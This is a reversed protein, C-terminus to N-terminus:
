GTTRLGAAIANLSLLLSPLAAREADADGAKRAARWDRLVDIQFGHLARLGADRLVLTKFMRPRRSEMPGGFLAEIMAATRTYEDRVLRLFRDRVAADEVLSAYDAVLDLSASAVATEVNKLVYGLFPHRATAQALRAFAAPDSTQIGELATGLGYWGPLYHRSQNWSFVWPIARLDALSRKGTRRVPRSGIHAQELADIPTAEDFYTMFGETDIFARYTAHSRAALDELLPTLAEDTSPRPAAHKITTAAVGALLLELNYTATILNAYKQAITEGQETVRFDGTVTGHPLAELFRHTPGAGRSVTGGRGHFFRVRRGHRQAVEALREQARHLGWQSAFIGADKCSDSYGLMVDVPRGGGETTSAEAAFAALSAKTVPHELFGELITPAAELDALTEFLPVVPLDCVLGHETMRALGVERALLYVVLLDSVGRTMSVILCGLGDLGHADREEVLVRFTDLANRAEDGLPAGVLALPRPTALEADLLARRRPEEWTGFDTADIGAASFLQAIARDHSASNQRVDLTALHFGFTEVARRVPEVDAEAIRDARIEHCARTLTALDAELETPRAYNSLRAAIMFALQRWPEGPHASVIARAEGGILSEMAALAEVLVPPTEQHSDAISLRRALGCLNERHLDLAARRHERLTERTVDATVLPHGDRDGGIWSGFRLRPRVAAALAEPDLGNERWADVLRADLRGIVQPFVDRLYHLANQREDKVQPKHELFDGTRWLREITAKIESTTHAQETDTFMRNERRVLLLYLFRTQELVDPPKAETPHATLVAEVRVNAIARAIARADLGMAALQRLNQAWLGPEHLGEGRMERLRRAQAAANEEVLNLLQFAMSLAAVERVGLPDSPGPLSADAERWPLRAVLDGDGTGELVEAFAAMLYALDREIKDLAFTLIDSASTPPQTM